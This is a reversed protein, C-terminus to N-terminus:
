ICENNAFANYYKKLQKLLKKYTIKSPKIKDLLSLEELICPGDTNDYIFSNTVLFPCYNNIGCFVFRSKNFDVLGIMEIEECACGNGLDNLILVYFLLCERSRSQYFKSAKLEPKTTEDDYQYSTMDSDSDCIFEQMNIKNNQEDIDLFKARISTFNDIIPQFFTDPIERYEDHTLDEMVKLHKNRIRDPIIEDHYYDPETDEDFYTVYDTIGDEGLYVILREIDLYASLNMKYNSITLINM